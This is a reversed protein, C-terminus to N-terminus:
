EGSQLNKTLTSQHCEVQLGEPTLIGTGMAELSERVGSYRVLNKTLIAGFKRLTQLNMVEVVLPRRPPPKSGGNVNDDKEETRDDSAKGWKPDEIGM